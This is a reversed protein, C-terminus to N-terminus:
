VLDHKLSEFEEKTIEGRAYRTKAIDLPTPSSVTREGTLKSIAWVVVGIIAGWFVVMWVWGAVMWGWGVDGIGWMHGWM